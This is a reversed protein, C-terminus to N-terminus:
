AARAVPAHVALTQQDVHALVGGGIGGDLRLRLDGGDLVEGLTTPGRDFSRVRVLDAVVCGEIVAPVVGRGRPVAGQEGGRGTRAAENVVVGLSEGRGPQILVHDD